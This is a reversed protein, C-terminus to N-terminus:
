PAADCVPGAVISELLDRIERFTRDIGDQWMIYAFEPNNKAKCAASWLAKDDLMLHCCAGFLCWCAAPKRSETICIGDADRACARKTWRKPDNDFHVLLRAAIDHEQQTFTVHNM